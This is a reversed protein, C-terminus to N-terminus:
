CSSSVPGCSRRAGTPFAKKLALAGGPTLGFGVLQEVSAMRIMDPSVLQKEILMGRQSHVM